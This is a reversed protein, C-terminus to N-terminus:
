SKKLFVSFIYPSQASDRISSTNAVTSQIGGSIYGLLVPSSKNSIDEASPSRQM